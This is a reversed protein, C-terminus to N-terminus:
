DLPRPRTTESVADLSGVDVGEELDDLRPSRGPPSPRDPLELCELRGFASAVAFLGDREHERAIQGSGSFARGNM